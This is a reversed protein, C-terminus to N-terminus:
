NPLAIPASTVGVSSGGGLEVEVVVEYTGAALPEPAKFSTRLAEGPALPRLELTCVRDSPVHLGTRAERVLSSACLNTWVTDLTRNTLVVEFSGSSHTLEANLGSSGGCSLLVVAAGFRVLNM